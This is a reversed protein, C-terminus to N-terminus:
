PTEPIWVHKSPRKIGTEVTILTSTYGAKLTEAILDHYRDEIAMIAAEYFTKFCVMLEVLTITKQDDNWWMIDPRLDTAAIHTPFSYGDSLDVTMSTSFALHDQIINAM